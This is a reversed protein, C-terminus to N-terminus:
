YSFNGIVTLTLTNYINQVYVRYQGSVTLAFSHLLDNGGQVYRRVGNPEMIGVKALKGDPIHVCISISGGSSASFGLTSMMSDPPVDWAFNRGGRLRGGTAEVITPDTPGSLEYYEILDNENLTSEDAPTEEYEYLGVLNRDSAQVTTLATLSLVLILAMLVRTTTKLKLNRENNKMKELEGLIRLIKDGKKSTDSQVNSM